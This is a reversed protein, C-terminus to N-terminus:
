LGGVANCNAAVAERAMHAHSPAKECYFCKSPWRSTLKGSRDAGSAYRILSPEKVSRVCVVVVAFTLTTAHGKLHSALDM